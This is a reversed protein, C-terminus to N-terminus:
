NRFPTCVAHSDWILSPNPTDTVAFCPPSEHGWYNGVGKWSLETVLAYSGFVGVTRTTSATFDNLFV